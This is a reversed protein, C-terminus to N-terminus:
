VLYMMVKFLDDMSIFEVYNNKFEDNKLVGILKKIDIDFLLLEKSRLNETFVVKITLTCM